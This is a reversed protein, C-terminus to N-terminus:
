EPKRSVRESPRDKLQEAIQKAEQLHSNAMQLEADLKERMEPSAHQRLVKLEDIVHLHGGIQQGIFCQDFEAGQKAGLEQKTTALCEKGVQQLISVWNLTATPSGAGRAVEDSFRPAGAPPSAGTRVDSQAVLNGALTKMADCGATHERIMKEAFQKVEPSQAKSQGFKAIEIENHCCSYLVAAIQQDSTGSAPTGALPDAALTAACAGILAIFSGTFLYRM